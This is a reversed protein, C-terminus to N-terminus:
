NWLVAPCPEEGYQYWLQCGQYWNKQLLRHNLSCCLCRGSLEWFWNVWTSRRPIAFTAMSAAKNNESCLMKLNPVTNFEIYFYLDFFLTVLLGEPYGTVLSNTM